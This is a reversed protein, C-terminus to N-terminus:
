PLRVNPAAGGCLVLPGLWDAGCACNAPEGEAYARGIWDFIAASLPTGDQEVTRNVRAVKRGCGPCSVVSGEPLPLSDLEYWQLADVWRGVPLPGDLLSATRPDTQIFVPVDGSVECVQGHRPGGELRCLVDV